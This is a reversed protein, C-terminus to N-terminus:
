VSVCYPHFTIKISDVQQHHFLIVYIGIRMSDHLPFSSVKINRLKTWRITENQYVDNIVFAVLTRCGPEIKKERENERLKIDSTMGFVSLRMLSHRCVDFAYWKFHRPMIHTCNYMCVSMNTYLKTLRSLMIYTHVFSIWVFTKGYQHLCNEPLNQSLCM